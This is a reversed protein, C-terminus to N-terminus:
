VDVGFWKLYKKYVVEIVTDKTEFWDKIITGVLICLSVQSLIPIILLFLDELKYM